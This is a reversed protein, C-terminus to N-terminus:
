SPGGECVRECPVVTDVRVYIYEGDACTLRNVCLCGGEINAPPKEQRLLSVPSMKVCAEQVMM